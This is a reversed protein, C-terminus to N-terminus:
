TQTKVSNCHEGPRLLRVPLRNSLFAQHRFLHFSSTNGPHEARGDRRRSFVLRHNGCICRAVWPYLSWVAISESIRHHCYCEVCNRHINDQHPYHLGLTISSYFLSMAKRVVRHVTAKTKKVLYLRAIHLKTIHLIKIHLQLAYYTIRLRYHTIQLSYNQLTYNQLM